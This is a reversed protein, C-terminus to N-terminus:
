MLLNRYPLWASAHSAFALWVWLVAAYFILVSAGLWRSLAEDKALSEL